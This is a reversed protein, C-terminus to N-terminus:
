QKHSFNKLKFELAERDIRNCCSDHFKKSHEIFYDNLQQDKQWLLRNLFVDLKEIVLKKSPFENFYNWLSDIITEDLEVTEKATRSIFASLEAQLKQHLLHHDQLRM